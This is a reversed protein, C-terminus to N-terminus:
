GTDLNQVFKSVYHQGQHLDHICLPTHLSAVSVTQLANSLLCHDAEHGPWKLKPYLAGPVWGFLPQTPKLGM